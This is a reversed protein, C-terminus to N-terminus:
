DIEGHKQVKIDRLFNSNAMIPPDILKYGKRKMVRFKFDLLEAPVRLMSAAGFFSVDENLAEFVDQDELLYEAAFLNAEYELHSTEDFMAYDHFAHIGTSNRHLVAHGIEHALIIKQIISPLESNITITKIRCNEMFFGKCCDKGKGLPFYLVKIGMARCLRLPDREDYRRMVKAVTESINEMLM